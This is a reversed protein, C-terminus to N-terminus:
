IGIERCNAVDNFDTCRCADSCRQPWVVGGGVVQAAETAKTMGPNGSTLYDNDAAVVLELCPRALQIALAVSKLNGCNMSAAVPRRTQTNVTAGTAWGEVIYIRGFKPLASAGLLCFCDTIQGNKLFRKSGDYDIRQINVLEGSTNYLPVLLLGKLERVNLAPVCKQILYPHSIDASLASEWLERARHAALEQAYKRNAQRKQTAIRMAAEVQRDLSLTGKQYACWTFQEGTRWNGYAGAPVNDVHLLYWCAANRYRGNPDDVRHVRGDGIPDTSVGMDRYMAYSFQQIVSDGHPFHLSFTNFPAAFQQGRKKDM